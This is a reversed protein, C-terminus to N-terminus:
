LLHNCYMKNNYNLFYKKNINCLKCYNGIVNFVLPHNRKYIKKIFLKDITNKNFLKILNLNFIDGNPLYFFITIFTYKDLYNMILYM